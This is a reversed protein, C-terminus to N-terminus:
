FGHIFKSEVTCCETDGTFLVERELDLSKLLFKQLFLHSKFGRSIERRSSELCNCYVPSQWQEMLEIIVSINKTDM